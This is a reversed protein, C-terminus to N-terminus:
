MLGAINKVSDFHKQSPNLKQGISNGAQNKDKSSNCGM